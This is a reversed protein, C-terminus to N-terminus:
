GKAAARRARREKKCIERYICWKCLTHVRIEPQVAKYFDDVASNVRRVISNESDMKYSIRRATPAWLMQGLTLFYLGQKVTQVEPYAGFILTTYFDLQGGAYQLTARKSTKLDIVVATKGDESIMLRDIKGRLMAGSDKYTSPGLSSDVAIEVERDDSGISYKEKFRSIRNEFITATDRHTDLLETELRTLGEEKKTQDFAQSLTKGDAVLESLRHAASGFKTATRDVKAVLDEPIDDERIREVYQLNSNSWPKLGKSQPSFFPSM